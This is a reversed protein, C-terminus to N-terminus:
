SSADNTLTVAASLVGTLPGAAIAAGLAVADGLIQLVSNIKAVQSKLRAAAANADSTAKKIKDIDSQSAALASLATKIAVDNAYQTLKQACENLKQTQAASLSINPDGLIDAVYSALAEYDQAIALADADTM